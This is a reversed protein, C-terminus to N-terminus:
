EELRQPLRWCDVVYNGGDKPDLEFYKTAALEPGGVKKMNEFFKFVESVQEHYGYRSIM